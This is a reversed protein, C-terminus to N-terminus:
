LPAPLHFHASKMTDFTKLSNHRDHFIRAPTSLLYFLKAPSEAGKAGRM